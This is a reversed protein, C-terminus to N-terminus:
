AAAEAEAPDMGSPIEIGTPEVPRPGQGAAFRRLQFVYALVQAVAGYLAAPIEAGIEVHRYLARALPPAELQPVGHTRALERIKAAVDDAGKAVAIPAGQRSELYRLAVAFHTPNTVVVDATPIAAMMRKRAMERQASRVRAKVHPDGETEKNERRVEELTMKLSNRHHVIQYPVDILSTVVLTAVLLAFGTALMWGFHSIAEPLREYAMQAFADLHTYIYAGGVGALLLAILMVKGLQVLAQVSVLKGLGSVPNLRDLKPEALTPVFLWGGVALPAAIAAMLLVALVPAFAFLAAFSLDGLRAAFRAPDALLAADFTLGNAVVRLSASFIPASLAFLTAGAGGLLLLHALDRSRPVQGERRADALRKATPPLNREQGTEEAM